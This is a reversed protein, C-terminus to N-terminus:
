YNNFYQAARGTNINEGGNPYLLRRWNGNQTEGPVNSHLLRIDNSMSGSQYFLFLATGGVQSLYNYVWIEYPLSNSESRVTIREGPEGYRLYILGRDSNYAAGGRSGFLKNVERVKDSYEKWAREPKVPDLAEFYNYIFYRSYLPDPRKLFGEIVQRQGENSNPLLMQLISRVQEENYKGLFTKSLDLYELKEEKNASTDKVAAEMKEPQANLTQVFVQSRGIEKGMPNVIWVIAYYNGSPVTAMNLSGQIFHIDEGKVISDVYVPASTLRGDGKKVLAVKVILPFSKESLRNTHYVEAYFKLQRQGDDYFNFARPVLLKGAKYFPSATDRSTYSTDLLQLGSLWSEKVKSNDIAIVSDSYTFIEDPKEAQYMKLELKTKGPQLPYTHQIFINQTALANVPVATTQTIFKRNLYIGNENRLTVETIVQAAVLSDKARTYRISAPDLQWYMHLVPAPSYFIAKGTVAEIAFVSKGVLTLLLSLAIILVCRLRM